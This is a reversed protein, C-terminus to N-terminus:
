RSDHSEPAEPYVIPMPTLARLAATQKGQSDLWGLFKGVSSRTYPRHHGVDGDDSSPVFSPASRLHAHATDRPIEPLSIKGAAYAEVVARVTEMEVTFRTSWDEQNERAM